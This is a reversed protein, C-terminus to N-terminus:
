FMVVGVMIWCNNRREEIADTPPKRAGGDTGMLEKADDEHCDCVRRQGDDGSWASADGSPAASSAGNTSSLPAARGVSSCASM